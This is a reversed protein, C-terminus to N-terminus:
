CGKGGGCTLQHLRTRGDYTPQPDGKINRGVLNFGVLKWGVEGQNGGYSPDGLFGELTLVVFMEYWRAEGSKEPSDKFLTLLEDQQASTCQAFPVKFMSQARRGLAAIGPVFNDRMQKMAETQLMLDIYEPVKADLAGPDEDRPLMREVAATLTAWEADTFTQHSATLAEKPLAQPAPTKPEQKCGNLLVVGGGFFSLQQVFVRRSVDDDDISMPEKERTM